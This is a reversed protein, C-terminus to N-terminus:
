FEYLRRRNKGDKDVVYLGDIGDSGVLSYAIRRNDPSWAVEITTWEWDNVDVILRRTKKGDLSFIEIGAWGFVLEDGQPAVSISVPWVDFDSSFLKRRLGDDPGIEYVGDECALILERGNPSWDPTRPNCAHGIVRSVNSGDANMTYLTSLFEKDSDPDSLGHVYAISKGDPSWRAGMSGDDSKILRSDGRYASVVSFGDRSRYLITDGDPSWDPLVGYESTIETPEGGSASVVHIQTGCSGDAAFAIEEGNPSWAPSGEEGTPCEISHAIRQPARDAIAWAIGAAALAAIAIAVVIAARRSIPPATAPTTKELSRFPDSWEEGADLTRRRTIYRVNQQAAEILYTRTEALRPETVQISRTLEILEILSDVDMQALLARRTKELIRLSAASDGQELAQRAPSLPDVAHAEVPQPALSAIDREATEILRERAKVDVPAVAAIERALDLLTELGRRDAAVALEDRARELERLAARRRGRGIESRAAALIEELSRTM